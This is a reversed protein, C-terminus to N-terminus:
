LSITLRAKREEKDEINLGLMIADGSTIWNGEYSFQCGDDFVAGNIKSNSIDVKVYTGKLNAGVAIIENVESRNLEVNKLNARTIDPYRKGDITPGYLTQLDIVANTDSLDIGRLDANTFDLKSLDCNILIEKDAFFPNIIKRGNSEKIFFIYDEIVTKIKFNVANEKLKRLTDTITAYRLTNDNQVVKSEIMQKDKNNHEAIIQDYNPNNSPDNFKKLHSFDLRGKCDLIYHDYLHKHLLAVRLRPLDNLKNNSHDNKYLCTITKTKTNYDYCYHYIYGYNYVSCCIDKENFDFYKDDFISMGIFAPNEKESLTGFGTLINADYYHESCDFKLMDLMFLKVDYLQGLIEGINISYQDIIKDDNKKYPHNCLISTKKYEEKDDNNKSITLCHLEIYEKKQQEKKFFPKVYCESKDWPILPYMFTVGTKESLEKLLINLQKEVNEIYSKWLLLVQYYDLNYRVEGM